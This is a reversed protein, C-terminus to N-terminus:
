ESVPGHLWLCTERTSERCGTHRTFGSRRLLDTFREQEAGTVTLRKQRDAATRHASCLLQPFSSDLRTIKGLVVEVRASGQLADLLAAKLRQAHPVTLEGAVTVTERDGEHRRQIDAM